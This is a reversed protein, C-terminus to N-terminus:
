VICPSIKHIRYHLRELLTAKRIHLNPTNIGLTQHIEILVALESEAYFMEKKYGDTINTEFEVTYFRKKTKMIFIRTRENKQSNSESESYVNYCVILRSVVPLLFFKKAYICIYLLLSSFQGAPMNWYCFNVQEGSLFFTIRVRLLYIGSSTSLANEKM